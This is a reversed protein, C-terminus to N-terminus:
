HVGSALRGLGDPATVRVRHGDNELLGRQRLVAAERTIAARTTNLMEALARRNVERPLLVGHAGVEGNSLALDRLVGALKQRVTRQSPELSQGNAQRLHQCLVGLLRRAAAPHTELFSQFESRDLVAVECDSVAYVSISRSNGDLLAMDGFFAGENLVSLAVEREGAGRTMVRVSGALVLFLAGGPDGQLFVPSDAGLRKFVVKSALELREDEDLHGLLPVEHLRWALHEADPKV